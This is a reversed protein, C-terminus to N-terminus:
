QPVAYVVVQSEAKGRKVPWSKKIQQERLKERPTKPSIRPQRDGPLQEVVVYCVRPGTAPQDEEAFVRGAYYSAWCYPDDIEDEAAANRSLWYGAERYPIRDTHLPELTKVLAAAVLPVLLAAVGVDGALKWVGIRSAMWDGVQILGAATWFTACFLILVTHRDSLYGMVVPVRYLFFGLALCVILLVWSVPASRFRGRAVFLGLLAPLWTVYFFGKGLTAGLLWLAKGRSLPTPGASVVPGTEADNGAEAFEEEEGAWVKASVQATATNLVQIPTNKTTLHGVVLVFPGAVTLAGWALLAGSQLFVPWPRRRRAFAQEAVLVLGTAAVVFAGEPRTLYALGGCLGAGAFWWPSGKRLGYHACLMATCGCLLFLPESLGDAMLRGSAPLCQFLLAAVFGTRRDFMGRGLLFMPGVLLVSALVSTLQASRQMAMPLDGGYWSRVPYSVLLLAAPYGPHQAATRVVKPWDGDRAPSREKAIEHGLRWAIRIYGISDRAAVETHALQWCRLGAAVVVLVLLLGFDIRGLGTPAAQPSAAPLRQEDM